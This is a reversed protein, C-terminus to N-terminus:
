EPDGVTKILGNELDQMGGTIDKVDGEKDMYLSNVTFDRRRVDEEISGAFEVSDPRRMDTYKGDVRFTTIEINGEPMVATVTGHVSANDIFRIGAEALIKATIEPSCSSAIDFDHPTLHMIMDRVAGGAVYAEHGSAELLGLVTLVYGPLCSIGSVRDGTKTEM